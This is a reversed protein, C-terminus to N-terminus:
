AELMLAPESTESLLRRIDSQSLEKGPFKFLSESTDDKLVEM